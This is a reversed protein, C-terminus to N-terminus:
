QGAFLLVLWSHGAPLKQGAPLRWAFGQGGPLTHAAPAELAASHLPPNKQGAFLLVLRSHGKPWVLVSPAAAHEGQGSWPTTHERPAM